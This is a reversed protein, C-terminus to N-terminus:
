KDLAAPTDRIEGKAREEDLKRKLQEKRKRWLGLFNSGTSEEWDKSMAWNKLREKLNLLKPDEGGEDDCFYLWVERCRGDGSYTVLTEVDFEFESGLHVKELRSEMARVLAQTEERGLNQCYFRLMQCQLSNMFSVMDIGIVNKIVIECSSTVWSALAALHESPINTLDLDGLELYKTEEASGLLGHYALSAACATLLFGGGGEGRFRQERVRAAFNEIVEIKLLKM